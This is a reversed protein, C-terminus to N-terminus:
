VSRDLNPQDVRELRHLVVEARAAVLLDARARAMDDDHREVRGIQAPM